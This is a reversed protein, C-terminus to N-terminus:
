RLNLIAYKAYNAFVISPPSVIFSLFFDISIGKATICAPWPIRIFLRYLVCVIQLSIPAFAGM